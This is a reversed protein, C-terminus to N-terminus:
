NNIKTALKARMTEIPEIPEPYRIPSQGFRQADALPSKHNYGRLLMEAVLREHRDALAGLHGIWRQTEPHNRYGRKNKTIVSWIAHLEVHEGMLRKRDLCNPPIPHWIRLKQGRARISAPDLCHRSSSLNM